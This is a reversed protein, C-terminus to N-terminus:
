DYGVETLLEEMSSIIRYPSYRELVEVSRYGWSVGITRMKGNQGTKMDVDSDGVFITEYTDVEFKDLEKVLGAISPKIPNEEKKGLVFDFVMPLNEDIIKLAENHSKNTYIGLIFGAKKLKYLVKAVKPYPKVQYSPNQKFVAKFEELDKIFTDEDYISIHETARKVLNEIGSGIFSVVEDYSFEYAAKKGLSANLSFQLSTITDFLTGDLDFVVASYPSWNIPENSSNILLQNAKGFIDSDNFGRYAGLPSPHSSKVIFHKSKDVFNEVKAAEKGLLIYVVASEIKNLELICNKTFEEWGLNQHSGAEGERVTLVRNLLLVGRRAWSRLSGCDSKKLGRFKELNKYINVLSPPLKVKSNVSFALGNAQGFAHYPDQGIIVVKVESFPTLRFANFIENEKPFIRGKEKKLKNVLNKYYPKEKERSIFNLWDNKIEQM